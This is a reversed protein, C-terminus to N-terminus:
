AAFEKFICNNSFTSGAQRLSGFHISLFCNKSIIRTVIKNYFIERYVENYFDHQHIILTCIKLHKNQLKKKM